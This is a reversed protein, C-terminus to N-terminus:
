VLAGISATTKNPLFQAPVDIWPGYYGDWFDCAQSHNGGARIPLFVGKNLTGLRQKLQKVIGPHRWAVDHREEPDAFVDHLCGGLCTEYAFDNKVAELGWGGKSHDSFPVFPLGYRAIHRSGPFTEPFYDM